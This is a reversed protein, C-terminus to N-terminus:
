TQNHERKDCVRGEFVIDHAEAFEQVFQSFEQFQSEFQESGNRVHSANRWVVLIRDFFQRPSVDEPPKPGHASLNQMGRMLQETNM